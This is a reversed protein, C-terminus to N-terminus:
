VCIRPYTSCCTLIIIGCSTGINKAIRGMWRIHLGLGLPLFGVIALSGLRYSSIFSFSSASAYDCRDSAVMYVGTYGRSVFITEPSFEARGKRGEVLVSDLGVDFDVFLSSCRSRPTLLEDAGFCFLKM